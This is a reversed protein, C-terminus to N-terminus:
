KSGDYETEVKTPITSLGNEKAYKALEDPDTITRTIAREDKNVYHVYPDNKDGYYYNLGIVAPILLM